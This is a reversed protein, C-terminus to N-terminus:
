IEVETESTPIIKVGSFKVLFADKLFSIASEKGMEYLMLSEATTLFVAISTM